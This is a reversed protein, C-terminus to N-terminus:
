CWPLATVLLATFITVGISGRFHDDTAFITYNSLTTQDSLGRGPINVLFSFRLLVLLPVVLLVISASVPLALLLSRASM